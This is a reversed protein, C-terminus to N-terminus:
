LCMCLLPLPMQPPFLKLLINPATQIQIFKLINVQLINVLLSSKNYGYLCKTIHIHYKSSSPIDDGLFRVEGVYVYVWETDISGQLFTVVIYFSHYSSILREGLGIHVTSLSDCSESKSSISGIFEGMPPNFVLTSTQYAYVYIGPAGINWEPCLFLDLEIGNPSVATDFDFILTVNTVDSEEKKRVTVLQSAWTSTNTDITPSCGDFLYTESTNCVMVGGRDVLPSACGMNIDSGNVSHPKHSIAQLIAVEAGLM